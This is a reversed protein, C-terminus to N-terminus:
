FGLYLNEVFGAWLILHLDTNLLDIQRCVVGIADLSLSWPLFSLLQTSYFVELVDSRNNWIVAGFWLNEWSNCLDSCSKCNPSIVYLLMDRTDFTFNTREKTMEMNRYAQSDNANVTSMSFLVCGKLHSTGSAISCKTRPGHQLHPPKCFPGLLLQLIHHDGSRTWFHFRLHNPLAIWCPVTFPSHLLHRCFFLHSSLILSHVPISKALEVVAASFLVLYFPIAVIEDTSITKPCFLIAQSQRHTCFISYFWLCKVCEGFTLLRRMKQQKGSNIISVIPVHQNLLTKITFCWPAIKQM